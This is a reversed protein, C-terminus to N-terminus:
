KIREGTKLNILKQNSKESGLPGLERIYAGTKLYDLYNIRKWEPLGTYFAVKFGLDKALKFYDEINPLWDGGLFVVCYGRDQYKTLLSPYDVFKGQGKFKDWFCGLCGHPCGDLSLTLCLEGPIESLTDIYNLLKLYM